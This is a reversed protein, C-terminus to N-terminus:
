EERKDNDKNKGLESWANLCGLVLYGGPKLVREIEDLVKNIDPVFELMTVSAIVPFRQARWSVVMM